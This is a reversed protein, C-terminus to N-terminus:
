ATATQKRALAKTRFAMAAARAVSMPNGRENLDRPPMITKDMSFREIDSEEIPVTFTTDIGDSHGKPPELTSGGNDLHTETLM